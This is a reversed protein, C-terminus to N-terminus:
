KSEELLKLDEQLLASREEDSIEMYKDWAPDKKLQREVSVELTLPDQRKDNQCYLCRHGYAIGHKCEPVAM